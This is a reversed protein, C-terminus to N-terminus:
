KSASPRLLPAKGPARQVYVLNHHRYRNFIFRSSKNWLHGCNWLVLYRNLTQFVNATDYLGAGFGTNSKYRSCSQESEVGPDPGDENETDFEPVPQSDPPVPPPVPQAYTVPQSQNLSTLQDQQELTLKLRQTMRWQRYQMQRFHKIMRQEKKRQEMKCCTRRLIWNSCKQLKTRRQKSPMRRQQLAQIWQGDLLNHGSLESHM